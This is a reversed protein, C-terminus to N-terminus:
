QWKENLTQIKANMEEKVTQGDDLKLKTRQQEDSKKKKGGRRKQDRSRLIKGHSNMTRM